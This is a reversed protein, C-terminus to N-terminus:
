GPRCSPKWYPSRRFRLRRLSQESGAPCPHPSGPSHPHAGFRPMRSTPFRAPRSRTSSRLRIWIRMSPIQSSAPLRQEEGLVPTFIPNGDAGIESVIDDILHIIRTARENDYFFYPVRPTSPRSMSATDPKRSPSCSTQVSSTVCSRMRISATTDPYSLTTYTGQDIQQTILRDIEENAEENDKEM